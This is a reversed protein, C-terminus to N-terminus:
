FLISMLITGRLECPRVWLTQMVTADIVTPESCTVPEEEFLCCGLTPLGCFWPVCPGVVLYLFKLKLVYLGKMANRQWRVQCWDHPPTWIACASLSVGVWCAILGLWGLHTLRSQVVSNRSGSTLSRKTQNCHSWVCVHIVTFFVSNKYNYQLLHFKNDFYM